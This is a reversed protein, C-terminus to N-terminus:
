ARLELQRPEVRADSPLGDIAAAADFLNVLLDLTLSRGEALDSLIPALKHLAKPKAATLMTTGSLAAASAIRRTNEKALMKLSLHNLAEHTM